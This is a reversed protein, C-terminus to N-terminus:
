LKVTVLANNSAYKEEHIGDVFFEPIYVGVVLHYTLVSNPQPGLEVILVANKTPFSSFFHWPPTLSM